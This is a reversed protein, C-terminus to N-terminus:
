LAADEAAGLHDVVPGRPDVLVRDAREFVTEGLVVPVAPGGEHGPEAVAALDDAVIQEHGVRLADPPGDGGARAVADEDLEVLDAGEGLGELGDVDGLAGAPGRDDAM